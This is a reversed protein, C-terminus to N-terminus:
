PVYFVPHGFRDDFEEVTAVRAALAAAKLVPKGKKTAKDVGAMLAAAILPAIESNKISLGEAPFDLRISKMKAM